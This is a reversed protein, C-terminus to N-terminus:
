ANERRISVIPELRVARIVTAALPMDIDYGQPGSRVKYPSHAKM